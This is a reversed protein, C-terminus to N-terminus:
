SDDSTAKTVATLMAAPSILVGSANSETLTQIGSDALAEILGSKPVKIGPYHEKAGDIAWRQLQVGHSRDHATGDKNVAAINAGRVRFHLHDQVGPVNARHFIISRGKGLDVSPRAEALLAQVVFEAVLDDTDFHYFVKPERDSGGM